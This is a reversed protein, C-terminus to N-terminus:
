PSTVQSIKIAGVPISESQDGPASSKTRKALLIDQDGKPLSAIKVTETSWSLSIRPLAINERVRHVLWRERIVLGVFFLLIAWMVLMGLEFSLDHALKVPILAAWLFVNPSTAALHRAQGTEDEFGRVKILRAILLLGGFAGAMLLLTSGLLMMGGPLMVREVLSVPTFYSTALFALPLSAAGGIWGWNTNLVGAKIPQKLRYWQAVLAPLALVAVMIFITSLQIPVSFHGYGKNLTFDIVRSLVVSVGLLLSSLVSLVLTIRLAVAYDKGWLLAFTPVLTSPPLLFFIGLIQELVNQGFILLGMGLVLRILLGTRLGKLTGTVKTLCSHDAYLLGFFTSVVFCSIVGIQFAMTPLSWGTILKVLVGLVASGLMLLPLHIELLEELTIMLRPVHIALSRLEKESSPRSNPIKFDCSDEPVLGAVVIAFMEVVHKHAVVLITRGRRSRPLLVQEYYYRVRTYLDEWTEGDPPAGYPSHLMEDYRRYGLIKKWLSKNHGQLFGFDRELLADSSHVTAATNRSVEAITQATIRARQLTSVHIEDFVLHKRAIARGAQKAQEFGLRTLPSDLRGAFQNRENAEFEGHRIFYISVM